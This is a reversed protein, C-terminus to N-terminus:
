RIEDKAKWFRKLTMRAEFPWSMCGVTRAKRLAKRNVAVQWSTLDTTRPFQLGCESSSVKKLMIVDMLSHCMWVHMGYQCDMDVSVM